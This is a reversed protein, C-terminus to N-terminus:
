ARATRRGRDHRKTVADPRAEDLGVRHREVVEDLDPREFDGTVVVDSIEPTDSSEGAIADISGISADAVVTDGVAVSWSVVGGTPAVVDHHMKMSEVLAVTSGASVAAGDDALLVVVTGQLPATIDM